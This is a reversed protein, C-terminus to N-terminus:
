GELFSWRLALAGHQARLHNHATLTQEKWRDFDQFLSKASWFVNKKRWITEHVLYNSASVGEGWSSTRLKSETEAM